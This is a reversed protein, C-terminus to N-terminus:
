SRRVPTVATRLGAAGGTCSAVPCAAAGPALGHGETTSRAAERLLGSWSLSTRQWCMTEAAFPVITDYDKREVPLMAKHPQM